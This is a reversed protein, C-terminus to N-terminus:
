LANGTAPAYTVPTLKKHFIADYIERVVPAAVSAGYGSDEMFCDVEYRPDSAPAFGQFVSTDQCGSCQVQATGTKGAIDEESLNSQAFVGYATGSPDHTVGVYGRVMASREAPTLSLAHGRVDPHFGVVLHGSPSVVKLVLQPRYRTGGNAFTSYANALQLPTVEDQFQGIAMEVSYGTFWQGYQYYRPHQRHEAAIIAPTPILGSAEYPLNIGTPSGLGYSYASKQLALQGYQARGNWLQEGIWNFFNDSSVTLATTVDIPGSGVGGDDHFTVNGVTLSGTDNYIYTPTIVGDHLGATGTILKFTSGPAYAAQYARNLLPHDPNHDLAHLEATTIGENFENPNFTPETALALVEGDKPDEVVASGGTSKYNGTGTDAPTARAAKQGQLIAKDAVEQDTADLTLVVNDGPVPPVYRAVGLEQGQANVEIDEVGPTGNLYQQFEYEVGSQGVIDGPEYHKGPYKKQWASLEQNDIQGVYGVVDGAYAGLTTAYPETISTATVGPFLSQHEDVYLIQAATARAVPVPAYPSYQNNDIAAKMAKATKGLLVALRAVLAPDSADQQQAEIVPVDRNGVLVRGNRDLIEGRPAPIYIRDYAAQNVQQDAVTANVVQLFWLRAILAAFLCGVVILLITLRLRSTEPSAPATM